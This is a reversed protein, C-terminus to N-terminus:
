GLGRNDVDARRTGTTEHESGHRGVEAEGHGGRGGGRVQRRTSPVEEGVKKLKVVVETDAEGHGELEEETVARRRVVGQAHSQLVLNAATLIAVMLNKVEKLTDLDTATLNAAVLDESTELNVVTPDEFTELKAATLNAAMLDEFGKVKEL